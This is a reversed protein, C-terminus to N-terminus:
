VDYSLPAHREPFLAPINAFYNKLVDSIKVYGKINKDSCLSIKNKKIIQIEILVVIEIINRIYM